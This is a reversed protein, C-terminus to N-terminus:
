VGIGRVNLVNVARMSYVIYQAEFDANRGRIEETLSHDILGTDRDPTINVDGNMPAIAFSLFVIIPKTVDTQRETQM